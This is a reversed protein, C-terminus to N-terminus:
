IHKQKLSKLKKHLKKHCGACLHQVELPKEYDNHHKQSKENGCEECPKKTIVRAAIWAKTKLPNKENYKKIRLSDLKM